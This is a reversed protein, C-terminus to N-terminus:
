QLVASTVNFGYSRLEVIARSIADTDSVRVCFSIQTFQNSDNSKFDVSGVQTIAVVNLASLLNCNADNASLTVTMKYTKFEQLQVPRLVNCSEMWFAFILYLCLTAKILFSQTKLAKM